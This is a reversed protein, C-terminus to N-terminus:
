LTRGTEQTENVFVWIVLTDVYLVCAEGYHM